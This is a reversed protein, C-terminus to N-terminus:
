LLTCPQPPAGPAHEASLRPASKRRPSSRPAPLSSWDDPNNNNGGHSEENGGADARRQLSLDDSSQTTRLKPGACLWASGDPTQQM